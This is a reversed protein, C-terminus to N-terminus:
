DIRENYLDINKLTGYVGKLLSKDQIDYEQLLKEYDAQLKVVLADMSEKSAFVESASAPLEYTFRPVDDQSKIVKKQQALVSTLTFLSTLLALTFTFFPKM